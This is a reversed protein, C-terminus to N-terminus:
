KPPLSPNGSMKAHTHPHRMRSDLLRYNYTPVGLGWGVCVCVCVFPVARRGLPICRIYTPTPDGCWNTRVVGALESFVPANPRAAAAISGPGHRLPAPGSGSDRFRGGFGLMELRTSQNKHMRFCEGFEYARNSVADFRNRFDDM